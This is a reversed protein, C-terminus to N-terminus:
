IPLNTLYAATRAMIISITTWEWVPHRGLRKSLESQLHGQAGSPWRCLTVIGSATYFLKVEQHHACCHEFCTSSYQINYLVLIQANLQDIVLIISVHVTLLVNFFFDMKFKFQWSLKPSVNSVSLKSCSLRNAASLPVPLSVSATSYSLPALSSTSLSTVSFSLNKNRSPCSPQKGKKQWFIIKTRKVPYFYAKCMLCLYHHHACCHEFCTSSYLLSITFFLFKHM